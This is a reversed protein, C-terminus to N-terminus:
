QPSIRQVITSCIAEASKTYIHYVVGQSTVILAEGKVEASAIQDYSISFPLIKINDIYFLKKTAKGQIGNEYVSIESKSITYYNLGILILEGIGVLVCLFGLFGYGNGFCYIALGFSIISYVTFWLVPLLFSKSTKNEGTLTLNGLATPTGSYAQQTHTTQPQDQQHTTPAQQTGCKTCFTADTTLRNGCKNCFM